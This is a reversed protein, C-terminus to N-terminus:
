CNKDRALDVLVLFHFYKIICVLVDFKRPFTNHKIILQLQYTDVVKM